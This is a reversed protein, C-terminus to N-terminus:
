KNVQRDSVPYNKEGQHGSPQGDQLELIDAMIDLYKKKKVIDEPIDNGYKVEAAVVEVSLRNLKSNLARYLGLATAKNTMHSNTYPNLRTGEELYEIWTDPITSTGTLAGALAGASAATCDTDRGRNNAVMVAQEVNGGTLKLIAFSVTVNEFISSHPYRTMRNDANYPSGPDTYMANIEDRFGRDMPDTYKDAIALGLEIETRIEPIAYNELATEIVSEVTAGPLLALSLAANYFSGWSFASDNEDEYYIRGVEYTDEIAGDPDGANIIPIPHFVRATLHINGGLDHPMGFISNPLEEVPIGWRVYALLTRDYPQTMNEMKSIDYDRLWVNVLEEANIRDQKEIIAIGISKQREIGDETAGAPHSWFGSYHNYPIFENFVGYLKEIVDIDHYLEVVAGLSSGGRSGLIVGYIKDFLPSRKVNSDDKILTYYHRNNLGINALDANTIEIYLSEDDGPINGDTELAVTEVTSGAPIVISGSTLKYEGISNKALIGSITYDVKIDNSYTESLVLDVSGPAFEPITSYPTSFQVVPMEADEIIITKSANEPDIVYAENPVLTITLSKNGTYVLDEVPRIRISTRPNRMLINKRLSYDYGNRATGGTEIYVTLEPIFTGTQYLIFEASKSGEIAKGDWVMLSIVPKDPSNGKVPNFSPLVFGMLILLVILNAKM